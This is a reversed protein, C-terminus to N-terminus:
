NREVVVFVVLNEVNMVAKYKHLILNAAVRTTDGGLNAFLDVRLLVKRPIRRKGSVYVEFKLGEDKKRGFDRHDRTRPFM